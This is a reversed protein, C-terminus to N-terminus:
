PLVELDGLIRVVETHIYNLLPEMHAWWAGDPMVAHPVGIQLEIAWNVKVDTQPEAFTVSALKADHKLSEREFFWEVPTGTVTEDLVWTRTSNFLTPTVLRHKDADDFDRLFSLPSLEVYKHGTQYPQACYIVRKADDTLPEIRGKQGAWKNDSNTIPFQLGRENPPPDQGSARIALEYVAHDLVCRLNHICDGFLLGWGIPDPEETLRLYAAHELGDREVQLRVFNPNAQWFRGTNPGIEEHIAYLHAEAKGLKARSGALAPM